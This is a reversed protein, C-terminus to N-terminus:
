EEHILEAEYISVPRNFCHLLGHGFETRQYAHFIIKSGEDNAFSPCAPILREDTEVKIKTIKKSPIDWVYIGVNSVDDYTEGFDPEYEAKGSGGM